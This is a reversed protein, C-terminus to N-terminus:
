WGRERSSWCLTAICFCRRESGLRMAMCPPLSRFRTKAMARLFRWVPIDAQSGPQPMAQLFDFLDNGATFDDGAGEITILRIEDDQGAREIADAM